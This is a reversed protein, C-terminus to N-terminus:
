RRVNPRMLEAVGSAIFGRLQPNNPFAYELIADVNVNVMPTSRRDVTSRRAKRVRTSRRNVKKAVPFYDVGPKLDIVESM